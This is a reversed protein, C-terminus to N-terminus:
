KDICGTLCCVNSVDRQSLQIREQNRNRRDRFLVADNGFDVFQHRAAILQRFEASSLLARAQAYM